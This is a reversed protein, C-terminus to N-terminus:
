NCTLLMSTDEKLVMLESPHWFHITGHSAAFELSGHPEPAEIINLRLHPKREQDFRQVQAFYRDDAHLITSKGIEPIKAKATNFSGSKNVTFQCEGVKAFGSLAFTQLSLGILLKTLKRKM